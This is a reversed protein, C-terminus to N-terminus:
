PKLFVEDPVATPVPANVDLANYLATGSSIIPQGSGDDEAKIQCFHSSGSPCSLSGSLQTYNGPDIRDSPSSANGSTMQYYFTDLKKKNEVSKHTFASAFLTVVIAVIATFVPIIIKLKRM